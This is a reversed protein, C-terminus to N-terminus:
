PEARHAGARDVGGLDRFTRLGRGGRAAAGLRRILHDTGDLATCDDRLDRDRHRTGSASEVADHRVCHCLMGVLRRTSRDATRRTGTSAGLLGSDRM